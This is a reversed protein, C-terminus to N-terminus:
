IRKSRAGRDYLMTGAHGAVRQIREGSVLDTLRSRNQAAILAHGDQAAQAVVLYADDRVHVRVHAREGPAFTSRGEITVRVVPPDDVVPTAATPGVGGMMALALTAIM